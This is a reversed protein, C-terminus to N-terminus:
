ILDVIVDVILQNLNLISESEEEEEEVDEDPPNKSRRKEKRRSRRFISAIKMAQEMNMARM